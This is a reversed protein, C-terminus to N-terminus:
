RSDAQTGPPRASARRIYNAEVAEPPVALGREADQLALRAVADALGGHVVEVPWGSAAAAPGDPDFVAPDDAVLSAGLERLRPELEDWTVLSESMLPRSEEDYCAAFLERRRADLLAARPARGRGACALARLSSVGVLPRDRSEALAKAAALGVRIGTFSGPGTAAAFVDIADLGVANRDLLRGVAGFLVQEYKPGSGLPETGTRSGRLLVSVSGSPRATDIALVNM